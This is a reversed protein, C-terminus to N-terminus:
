STKKENIFDRLTRRQCGQEDFNADDLWAQFGAQVAPWETDIISYWATDRNRGKTVQMQRFVGEFTMGIREAASRSPGNLANCKWEYRRYGLDFIRKMMLYMCETALITQRLSRSFALHGVEIVGHVPVMRLYSAVGLASQTHTDIIAYFQPDSGMCTAIMWDQYEAVDSFPGYPLYDWMRDDGQFSECLQAVHQCSRIPDLYGWKGIMKTHSPVNCGQWDSVIPALPSQSSSTSSHTSANNICM